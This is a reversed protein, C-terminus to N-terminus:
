KEKKALELIHKPIQHTDNPSLKSIRCCALMQEPMEDNHESQIVFGMDFVVSQISEKVGHLGLRAPYGFKHVDVDVEFYNPGEFFSSSTRALFPKANYQTVLTRTISNFKSHEVNMARAIVKFKKRISPNDPDAEEDNPHPERRIFRKLIRLSPGPDDDKLRRRSEETLRAYVVVNYGDGDEKKWVMNPAYGPIMCNIIFWEPIGGDSCGSESPCEAKAEEDLEISNTDVFRGFHHVKRTTTYMDIAQVEYLAVDSESKGGHIHYDPGVRLRFTDASCNSWSNPSSLEEIVSQDTENRLDGGQEHRDLVGAVLLEGTYESTM